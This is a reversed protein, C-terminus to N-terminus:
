APAERLFARISLFFGSINFFRGAGSIGLRGLGSIGFRGFSRTGSIGSVWFSVALGDLFKIRDCDLM